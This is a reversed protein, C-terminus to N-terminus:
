FRLVPKPTSQATFEYVSGNETIDVVKNAETDYLYLKAYKKDINENTFTMKYETDQGAQFAISTNNFDNVANIQYNGDEEVAYIQQGM